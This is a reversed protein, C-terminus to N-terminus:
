IHLSPYQRWTLCSTCQDTPASEHQMLEAWCYAAGRGSTCIAPPYAPSSSVDTPDSTLPLVSLVTCDLKSLCRTKSRHAQQLRRTTEQASGCKTVHPCGMVDQCWM